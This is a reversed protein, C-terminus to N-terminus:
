IHAEASLRLEALLQRTRRERFGMANAQLFHKRGLGRFVFSYKQPKTTSGSSPISACVLTPKARCALTDTTRPSVLKHRHYYTNTHQHLRLYSCVVRMHRGTPKRPCFFHAAFSCLTTGQVRLLTHLVRNAKILPVTVLISPFCM